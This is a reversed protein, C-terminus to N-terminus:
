LRILNFTQLLEEANHHYETYIYEAFHRKGMRRNCTRCLPRLNSLEEDGGSAFPVVHAVEWSAGEERLMKKDKCLLCITEEKGSFMSQWVQQRLKGSISRRKPVASASVAPVPAPIIMTQTKQATPAPQEDDCCCKLWSLM